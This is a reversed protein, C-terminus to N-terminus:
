LTIPIDRETRQKKKAPKPPPKLDFSLRSTNIPLLRQHKQRSPDLPRRPAQLGLHRRDGLEPSKKGQKGQTPEGTEILKEQWNQIGGLQTVPRERKRDMAAALVSM